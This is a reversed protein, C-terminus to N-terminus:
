PVNLIIILGVELECPSINNADMINEIPMGFEDAISECTDGEKVRYLIQGHCQMTPDVFFCLWGIIPDYNVGGDLRTVSINETERCERPLSGPFVKESLPRGTQAQYVTVTYYYKYREIDSGGSYACTEILRTSELSLCAVVETQDVSTSIWELPLNSTLNEGNENILILPSVTSPDYAAAEMNGGEGNCVDNFNSLFTDGSQAQVMAVVDDPLGIANVAIVDEFISGDTKAHTFDTDSLDAGTFDAAYLDADDLSAGNLRAGVFTAGLLNAGSLDANSLDAGDFNAMELDSGSLDAGSLDTDTLIAEKLYNGSLDIGSLNAGALNIYPLGQEGFDADILIANSFDCVAIYSSNLNAGSLNGGSFDAAGDIVLGSLDADTFNAGSFDAFSIDAGRLNALEFNSDSFTSDVLDAGSLDADLFTVESGMVDWFNANQLIAHSFNVNDLEASSFKANSLNATTFDVRDLKSRSFDINQLDADPSSIDSLEEGTFDGGSKFKPGISTCATLTVILILVTIVIRKM